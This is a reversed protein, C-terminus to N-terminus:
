FGESRPPPCSLSGIRILWLTSRAPHDFVTTVWPPQFDSRRRPDHAVRERRVSFRTKCGLSQAVRECTDITPGRPPSEAYGIGLGPQKAKEHHVLHRSPGNRAGSLVAAAGTRGRLRTLKSSEEPNSPMRSGVRSSAQLFRGGPRLARIALESPPSSEGPRDARLRAPFAENLAAGHCFQRGPVHSGIM